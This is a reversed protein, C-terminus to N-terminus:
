GSRLLQRDRKQAHRRYFHSADGIVPDIDGLPKTNDRILQVGFRIIQKAKRFSGVSSAPLSRSPPNEIVNEPCRSGGLAPASCRRVSADPMSFEGFSGTIRHNPFGTKARCLVQFCFGVFDFASADEGSRSWKLM